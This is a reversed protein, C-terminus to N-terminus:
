SPRSLIRPLKNGSEDDSNNKQVEALERNAHPPAVAPVSNETAPAIGHLRLLAASGPPILADVHTESQSDRRTNESSPPLQAHADKESQTKRQANESLQLLDERTMNKRAILEPLIKQTFVQDSLDHYACLVEIDSLLIKLTELELKTMDANVLRQYMMMNEASYTYDDLASLVIEQIIKPLAHFQKLQELSEIISLLSRFESPQKNLKNKEKIIILSQLEEKQIAILENLSFNNFLKLFSRQLRNFSFRESEPASYEAISTIFYLLYDPASLLFRSINDNLEGVSKFCNLKAPKFYHLVRENGVFVLIPTIRNKNNSQFVKRWVELPYRAFIKVRDLHRDPSREDLIEPFAEVISNVIKVDELFIETHCYKAIQMWLDLYRQNHYYKRFDVSTVLFWLRNSLWSAKKINKLILHAIFNLPLHKWEKDSLALLYIINRGTFSIANVINGIANGDEIGFPLADLPFRILFTKLADFALVGHERIFEKSMIQDITNKHELLRHIQAYFSQPQLTKWSSKLELVDDLAFYKALWAVTEAFNWEENATSFLNVALGFSELLEEWRRLPFVKVTIMSNRHVLMRRYLRMSTNNQQLLKLYETRIENKASHQIIINQFDKYIICDLPYQEPNDHTSFNIKIFNLLEVLSRYKGTYLYKYIFLLVRSDFLDGFFRFSKVAIDILEYNANSELVQHLDDFQKALDRLNASYFPFFRILDIHLQPQQPVALQQPAGQPAAVPIQMQQPIASQPISMLSHLCDSEAFLNLSHYHKIMIKALGVYHDAMDLVFQNMPYVREDMTINISESFYNLNNRNQITDILLQYVSGSLPYKLQLQHYLLSNIQKWQHIKIPLQAAHLPAHAQTMLDETRMMILKFNDLIVLLRLINHQDGLAPIKLLIKNFEAMFNDCGDSGGFEENPWALRLLAAVIDIKHLYLKGVADHIQTVSIHSYDLTLSQLQKVAEDPNNQPKLFPIYEFIDGYHGKFYELRWVGEYKASLSMQYAQHSVLSFKTRTKLDLQRLVKTWNDDLDIQSKFKDIEVLIMEKSLNSMSLLKVVTDPNNHGIIEILQYCISADALLYLTKDAAKHIATAYQTIALFPYRVLFHLILESRRFNINDETIFFAAIKALFSDKEFEYRMVTLIIQSHLESSFICGAYSNLSMLKEFPLKILANFIARDCHLLWQPINRFLDGSSVLFGAANIQIVAESIAKEILIRARANHYIHLCPLNPAAALDIMQRISLRKQLWQAYKQASHDSTKQDRPVNFNLLNNFFPKESAAFDTDINRFFSTYKKLENAIKSEKGRSMTLSVLGRLVEMELLDIVQSFESNELQPLIPSEDVGEEPEDSFVPILTNPVALMSEVNHHFYNYIKQLYPNVLICDPQQIFEYMADRFEMMPFTKKMYMHLQNLIHPESLVNRNRILHIVLELLTSDAKKIIILINQLPLLTDLWQLNEVTTFCEFISAASRYEDVRNRNMIQLLDYRGKIADIGQLNNGLHPQEKFLRVFSTIATWHDICGNLKEEFACYHRTKVLEDPYNELWHMVIQISQVIDIACGSHWLEFLMNEYNQYKLLLALKKISELTLHSLIESVNDFRHENAKLYNIFDEYKM